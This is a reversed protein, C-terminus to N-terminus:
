CRVHGIVSAIVLLALAIIVVLLVQLLLSSQEGLVLALVVADLGWHGGRSVRREGRYVGHSRVEVPQGM